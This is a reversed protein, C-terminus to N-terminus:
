FVFFIDGDAGFNPAGPTSSVYIAGLGNGGNNGYVKGTSNVSAATVTGAAGFSGSISIDHAIIQQSVLKTASLTGTSSQITVAACSYLQSTAGTVGWVVPYPAGDTRGASMAVSSATASNGSCSGASGASAAYNVSFNSPNYVYHNLGDSSGWLWPPQGGQGAWWFNMDTDDGRRPKARTATTATAANGAINIGWTGSAATRVQDTFNALTYFRLYSDGSAYVRAIATSGNDGSDTNIWGAQIYGSADTRVIQNAANNRGSAVALGGATVANGTISIGWTGSAGAGGIPAYNAPNFNGTHYLDRWVTWNASDTQNRWRLNGQYSFELQVPGVSGGPNFALLGRSDGAYGVSYFGNAVAGNLKSQDVGGRLYMLQVANLNGAHWVENGGVSLAVSAWNAADNAPDTESSGASKRRYLMRNATSFVVADQMYVSVPSFRAAGAFGAALEASAAAARKSVDAAAGSNVATDRASNTDVLAQSVGVALANAETRFQPLSGWFEFARANFVAVPDGPNPLPPLASITM